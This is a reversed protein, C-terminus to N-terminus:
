GGADASIIFVSDGAHIKVNPDRVFDKGNINCAHGPTLNNGQPDIVQGILAPLTAAVTSYLDSLTAGQRLILTVKSTKTVLRAVGFLEVTCTIFNESDHSGQVEQWRRLATEYDEPTNMNLFSLGEPDFRRIEDLSVKRTRVKDYLFIPRLEKRELQGQLIPLVSSRYVAHLPQLREEWTPVVVDYESIQSLLYSILSLNLFPADCSTVFCIPEHAARLGYCIGGVPGQYSVEDHIIAVGLPPIEQEPAAVVIIQSFLQRLKRIIHSILPEADFLLLAKPKGMRSSKGGALVIAAANTKSEARNM